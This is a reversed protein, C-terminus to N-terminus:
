TAAGNLQWIRLNLATAFTVWALYVGFLGVAVPVKTWALMIFLAVTCWLAVIDALAWGIEHRGFMIWSWAMNLALQILWVVLLIGLGEARWVLWGAVAILLYIITWVPGFVWGPPTFSPKTLAQYWDGPQFMAGSTAVIAVLGLFPLLTLYKM